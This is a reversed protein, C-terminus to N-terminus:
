AVRLALRLPFMFFVKPNWVLQLNPVSNSQYDSGDGSLTYAQEKPKHKFSLRDESQAYGIDNICPINRTMWSQLRDIPEKSV